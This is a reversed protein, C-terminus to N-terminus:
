GSGTQKCQLPGALGKNMQLLRARGEQAKLLGTQGGRSGAGEGTGAGTGVCSDAAAFEEWGGEMDACTARFGSTFDAQKINLSFCDINSGGRQLYYWIGDRNVNFNLQLFKGGNQM